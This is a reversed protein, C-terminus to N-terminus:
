RPEPSTFRFPQGDTAISLLRYPASATVVYRTVSTGLRVAVRWASPRQATAPEGGEVEVDLQVERRAAAQYVRWTGKVGTAWPTAAVLLPVANVEPMGFAVSDVRVVVNAGWADGTQLLRRMALVSDTTLLTTLDALEEVVLVEVYRVGRAAAASRQMRLFGVVGTPAVAVLSDRRPTLRSMDPRPLPVAQAAAARALLLAACGVTIGRM